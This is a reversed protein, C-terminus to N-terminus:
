PLSSTVLPALLSPPGDGPLRAAAECARRRVVVSADELAAVLDDPTLGGLRELAGLATARVDPAPDHLAARAAPEDGDHGALAALRRRDAETV